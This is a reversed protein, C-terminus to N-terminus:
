LLETICRGGEVGMLQCVVPDYVSLKPDKYKALRARLM